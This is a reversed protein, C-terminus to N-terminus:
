ASVQIQVLCGRSKGPEVVTCMPPCSLLHASDLGLPWLFSLANQLPRRQVPALLDATQMALKQIGSPTPQTTVLLWLTPALEVRPHVPSLLLNLSAVVHDTNARSVTGFLCPWLLRQTHIGSPKWPPPYLGTCESIKWALFCREMYLKCRQLQSCSSFIHGMPTPTPLTTVSLLM